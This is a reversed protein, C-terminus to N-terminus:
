VLINEYHNIRLITNDKGLVICIADIQHSSYKRRIDPNKQLYSEAMERIQSIKWPTIMEEPSGLLDGIRLKVEVFFLQHSKEGIIDIEGFRTQFNEGIIRYGKKVLFDKAMSEGLKGKQYNFKKM